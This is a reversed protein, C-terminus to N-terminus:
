LLITCIKRKCYTPLVLQMSVFRMTVFLMSSFLVSFFSRHAPQAPRQIRPTDQDRSLSRALM